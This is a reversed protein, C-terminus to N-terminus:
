DNSQARFVCVVREREGERGSCSSFHGVTAVHGVGRARRGQAGADPRLGLFHGVEVVRVHTVIGIHGAMGHLGMAYAHRMTQDHVIAQVGLHLYIHAM